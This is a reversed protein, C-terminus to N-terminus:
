PASNVGARTHTKVWDAESSLVRTCVWWYTKTINNDIWEVGIASSNTQLLTLLNNENLPAYSCGLM